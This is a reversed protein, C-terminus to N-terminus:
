AADEAGDEPRDEHREQRFHQLEAGGRQGTHIGAREPEDGGRPVDDEPQGDNEKQHVLGLSQGADPHAELAVPLEPRIRILESPPKAGRGFGGGLLTAAAFGGCPRYHCCTLAILALGFSSPCARRDSRPKPLTPALLDLPTRSKCRFPSFSFAILWITPESTRNSRTPRIVTVKPAPAASAWPTMLSPLRTSRVPGVDSWPLSM